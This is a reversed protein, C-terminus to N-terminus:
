NIKGTDSDYFHVARSMSYWKNNTFRGFMSKVIWEDPRRNDKVPSYWVPCSRKGNKGIPKMHEYEPLVLIVMKIRSHVPCGFNKQKDCCKKKKTTIKKTTAATAM